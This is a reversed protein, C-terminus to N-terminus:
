GCITLADKLSIPDLPARAELEPLLGLERLLGAMDWLHVSQAIKGNVVRLMSVGNIEVRRGTPPINLLTGNHTGRATWYLAVRDNELITEENSFVLDPFARCFRELQLVVGEPGKVRTHGTMDIGCYDDTYLERALTFNHTNWLSYLREVLNVIEERTM